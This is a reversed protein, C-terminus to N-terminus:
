IMPLFRWHRGDGNSTGCGNGESTSRGNVTTLANAVQALYSIFAFLTETTM